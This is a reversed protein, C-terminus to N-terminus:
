DVWQSRTILDEKIGLLIKDKPKLRLGRKITDVAEAIKYTHMYAKCLVTYTQMNYKNIALAKECTEVVNKLDHNYSYSKALETLIQVNRPEIDTAIKLNEISLEYMQRDRKWMGQLRYTIGLENYSPLQKPDIAIAKKFTNIAEDIDGEKKRERYTIGLENFIRVNDFELKAGSLFTNIAEDYNRNKRYAMGLRHIYYLNGPNVLLMSNLNRITNKVNQEILSMVDSIGFHEKIRKGFDFLVEQSIQKYHQIASEVLEWDIETKSLLEGEFYNGIKTHVAEKDALNAYAYDRIMAHASFRGYGNDTIFRRRNVLATFSPMDWSPLKRIVDISPFGFLASFECLLKVEAPREKKFINDLLRESFRKGEEDKEAEFVPIDKLILDLNDGFEGLRLILQGGLPYGQSKVFIKDLDEDSYIHRITGVIFSKMARKFDPLELPPLEHSNFRENKIEKPIARSIILLTGSSLKILYPLFERLDPDIIEYYDDIILFTEASTFQTLFAAYIDQRNKLEKPYRFGCGQFLKPLDFDSDAKIWFFKQEFNFKNLCESLLHTKGMGGVGFLLLFHKDKNRLFDDVIKRDEVRGFYEGEIKEYFTITPKEKTALILYDIFGQLNNGLETKIDFQRSTGIHEFFPAIISIVQSVLNLEARIPLFSHALNSNFEIAISLEKEKVQWELELENKLLIRKAQNYIDYNDSLVLPFIRQKIDGRIIMNAAELLCNTSSLYKKGVVPIVIGGEGIVKFFEPLSQYYDLHTRDMVVKFGFDTLAASLTHVVIEEESDPANGWAYSIYVTQSM